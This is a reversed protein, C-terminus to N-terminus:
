IGVHRTIAGRGIRIADMKVTAGLRSLGDLPEQRLYVSIAPCAPVKVRSRMEEEDGRGAEEEADRM